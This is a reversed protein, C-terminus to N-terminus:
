VLGQTPAFRLRMAPDPYTGRKRNPPPDIIELGTAQEIEKLVKKYHTERFATKEIVFDEIGQISAEKGHFQDIIQTRLVDLQPEKKFLVFQSPNTADSFTFGGTPDVKWMAEKMKKLGLLSNTAYFLYYDTVNRNNQMEFSRVHRAYASAQLQRIYLDRFGRNREASDATAAIGSWETTGFLTDFNDAQSQIGAFRNIEEYMFTVLVECHPSTLIRRISSFPIGTWGFPDIFAFTPIDRPQSDIFRTLEEDFTSGGIIQVDFNGPLDMDNVVERLMDARDPRKEMFRFLLQGRIRERHTLAAKIAIIPSGDEGDSYRGPGAFGDIYMVQPFASQGLIPFWALLYRMLVDHKARTHPEMAWNTTKPAAM